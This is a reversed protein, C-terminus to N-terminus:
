DDDDEDEDEKSHLILGYRRAPAPVHRGKIAHWLIDNLEEDPASEERHANILRKSDAARYATRTNVEAVISKAPLIATYPAANDPKGKLFEFPPAIADYQNMPPIGLLLEMTRLTSDTNHFHSDQTAKAVFPSIVYSTSRHADVHDYGNQADDEVIFIATSKWFPSHSIAEVMQGVAYDNDAVMARPSSADPTTGQTHDRPLRVMMFQPMQKKAVFGDFERKWETFRSPANYRGHARMQKPSPCGYKVWAESDAYTMDFSRFNEDTRGVLAKKTPLNKPPTPASKPTEPSPSPNEPDGETEGEVKPSYTFFGYGRYSVGARACADWIYGSATRGVDPIGKLDVPIGNNVGEQDYTRARSSYSYPVNRSTYASVMGATSWNWGDASVEACCYFNDLLAFREALAHQNPTVDRGFLVLSPDANGRPLDGLVQDYTRNEKVIYIVHKIGPNVFAGASKSGGANLTSAASLANFRNNLLTQSTMRELTAATPIPITSVTGEIVNQIYQPRESLNPLPTGNPNRAAVGKANSVLLRKGDPSVVCATPAWGVPIYGTLAATAPVAADSRPPAPLTMVAVANMDALTIFLQREDPSLALGTPTAGLLGRAENPRLLVTQIVKDRATDIISLTDSGSNVVFLRRQAKDLLLASPQTGTAIRRLGREQGARADLVSVGGVQESTVYLKRGAIPGRTIAAVALPYGPLRVQAKVAGRLPIAPKPPAPETKAGKVVPSLRIPRGMEPGVASVDMVSLSSTMDHDPEGINNAVFLRRGDASLALGAVHHPVALTGGRQSTAAPANRLSRGTSELKGGGDLTLISVQDEAGRSVYLTTKGQSNAGWALGYFLGQKKGHLDDGKKDKGRARTDNFDLQSVLHGDATSLVSLYQRFGVNTVVVFRGDPSLLLNVPYSGVPTQRGQPTIFKGTVL